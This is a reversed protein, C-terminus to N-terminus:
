QKCTTTIQNHASHNLAVQLIGVQEIQIESAWWPLFKEVEQQDTKRGREAM